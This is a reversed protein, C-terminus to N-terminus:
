DARNALQLMALENGVARIVGVWDGASDQTFIRLGPYWPSDNRGRIWRWEGEFRNFMWVPKGLACALHVISTDVTIVLDLLSILGATDAMDHADSMWDAIPLADPTAAVGGAVGGKQLSVWAVNEQRLLPALRHLDLSRKADSKHKGDGAWALGVKLHGAPLRDFRSRWLEAWEARARLYPIEAPVNDVTTGFARPLSLTPCQWQWASQDKPIANLFEIDPSFSERFLRILPSQSMVVSLRAFRQAVLPLYRAMQIVDGLGQEAFVLLGDAWTETQGKWLPL